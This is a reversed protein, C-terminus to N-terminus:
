PVTYIPVGFCAKVNMNSVPDDTLEIEVLICIYYPHQIGVRLQGASLQVVDRKSVFLVDV